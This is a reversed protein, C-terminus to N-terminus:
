TALWDKAGNTLFGSAIFLVVAPREAQAWALAGQLADFGSSKSTRCGPRIFGLSM